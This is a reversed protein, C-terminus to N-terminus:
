LEVVVLYHIPLPPLALTLVEGDRKAELDTGAPEVHIRRPHYGTLRLKIDHVPVAEERLPADDNAYAHHATSNIGNFLHIVLREGEKKQRFFTAQVCMPAQVKVGFESAAAWRMAQALIIREYPYAYLYYASDMGAPLYVVKGKGCSRAIVAPIKPENAEGALMGIAGEAGGACEVRVASGKFVVERQGLYQDLLPHTTVPHPSRTFHHIDRRKQWYSEDLGKAFNVDLAERNTHARGAPGLYHAGLVDSLGFDRRPVGTETCLSTDLSAVLGGGKQVFSRIADMQAASLCAANPLLLLKYPALDAQNLNWDNIVTVPLHEELAARFMGFVHALYREEVAGPDQGYFVRTYDSMLLAAWPEPEKHTLWPSRRKIETFSTKVAEKIRENWGMSLSAQGGQSIIFLARTLTEHPPFSDTGYPNGHSMMYAESFCHRHNSVAWLYANAFAPVITTGRNSEDMWFEQAPADFLLNMRTSMSRPIERMHGFRGAQTTWTVLAIEPKIARLRTQMKEVFREMRRDMFLQYRRMEPNSMGGQPIEAGAEKRYAERCHQCYCPGGHHIGDFSFADLQPYQTLCECLLDIFFDGWPGLQCLSGAEPHQKLDLEPVPGNFQSIVRWDPHQQWAQAQLCPPLAGIVRLGRQKYAGIIKALHDAPLGPDRAILRSAWYAYRPDGVTLACMQVGCAAADDLDGEGMYAYRTIDLLWAPINVERFPKEDFETALVIAQGWVAADDAAAVRWGGFANVLILLLIIAAGRGRTLYLKM